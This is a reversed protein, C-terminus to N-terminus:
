TEIDVYPPVTEAECSWDAVGCGPDACTVTLPSAYAGPEYCGDCLGRGHLLATTAAALPPLASPVNPPAAADLADDGSTAADTTSAGAGAEAELRRRRRLPGPWKGANDIRCCECDHCVPRCACADNCVAGLAAVVADEEPTTTGSASVNAGAAQMRRLGGFSLRPLGV